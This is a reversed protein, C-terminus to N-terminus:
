RPTGPPRNVARSGRVSCGGAELRSRNQPPRCRHDDACRWWDAGDRVQGVLRYGSRVEREGKLCPAPTTCARQRAVPAIARRLRWLLRSALYASPIVATWFVYAAGPGPLGLWWARLVPLLVAVGLYLGAAAALARALQVALAAFYVAIGILRHCDADSLGTWRALGDQGHAVLLIRLANAALTTFWAAACTGLLLGVSLRLGRWRWLWGLWSAILFNGGACAKVIALGHEADLWEGSALPRFDLGGLGNLLRALPWLLWQLQHPDAGAYFQKFALALLLAPAWARIGPGAYRDAAPM